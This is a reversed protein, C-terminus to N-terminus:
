NQKSKQFLISAAFWLSSIGVSQQTIRCSLFFLCPLGGAMQLFRPPLLSSCPLSFPFFAWSTAIAIVEHKCLCGEWAGGSFGGWLPLKMNWHCGVPCPFNCLILVQTAFFVRGVQIGVQSTASIQSKFSWAGHFKPALFLCMPVELPLCAEQVKQTVYM